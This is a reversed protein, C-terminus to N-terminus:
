LGRLCARELTVVQLVILRLKLVLQLVQNSLPFLSMEVLKLLPLPWRASLFLGVQSLVKITVIFRLLPRLLVWSASHSWANVEELITHLRSVLREVGVGHSWGRPMLVWWLVLAEIQWLLFILV